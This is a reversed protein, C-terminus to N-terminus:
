WSVPLAVVGGTLQDEHYRVQDVPVALELNPFRAVLAALAAQIEIRALPAGICYHGGYAFTLHPAGTRDPAFQEPDAFVSPDANAAFTDLMVLEGAKVPTGAIELDTRAWRPIGGNGGVRARMTEEVTAPIRSPDAVLAAWQGPMALLMLVSLSIQVVTTEHGAFLLLMSLVAIDEDRLGSTACLGSIVADDPELRKRAVLEAGYAYLEALGRASRDGDVVDAAAVSWARFQARDEYPVGLLECIVLIPLPMSLAEVLDGPGGDLKGFDDLLDATLGEVRARLARMRRPSFYPQLLERMRAHDAKETAFDGIPTGFLVSEGARPAKDPEPHSRGLREDDFLARVEAYGTVLWADDGTRTRIRHVAGRGRLERQLPPALLPGEMAFPLQVTM